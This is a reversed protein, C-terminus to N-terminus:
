RWLKNVHITVINGASAGVTGAQTQIQVYPIAGVNVRLVMLQDADTDFEIYQATVKVETSSVAEIPLVYGDGTDTMMGLARVRANLSDNIDLNIYLYLETYGRMDIVDGLNAWSDTLAQNEEVLVPTSYKGEEVLLKGDATVIPIGIETDSGERAGGILNVVPLTGMWNQGTTDWDVKRIKEKAM